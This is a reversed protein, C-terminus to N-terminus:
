VQWTLVLAGTSTVFGHESGGEPMELTVQSKAADSLNRALQRAKEHTESINDMAADAVQSLPM